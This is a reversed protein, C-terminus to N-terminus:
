GTEDAEFISTCRPLVKPVISVSSRNRLQRFVKYFIGDSKSPSFDLNLRGEKRVHFRAVTAIKDGRALYVKTSEGPPNSNFIPRLFAIM